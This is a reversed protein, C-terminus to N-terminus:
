KWGKKKGKRAVWEQRRQEIYEGVQSRVFHAPSIMSYMPEKTMHLTLPQQEDGWLDMDAGRWILEKALRTLGYEACLHLLTEDKDIRRNLDLAQDPLTLLHLALDEHKNFIAGCLPTMQSVPLGGARLGPVEWQGEEGPLANVPVGRRECYYTVARRRGDRAALSASMRLIFKGHATDYCAKNQPHEISKRIAADDGNIALKFLQASDPGQPLPPLPLVPRELGQESAAREEADKKERRACNKLIQRKGSMRALDSAIKGESTKLGIDAGKEMVLYQVVALVDAENTPRLCAAHLPTLEMTGGITDVPMQCEELFFRLLALAGRYAAYHLPLFSVVRLLTLSGIKFFMEHIM